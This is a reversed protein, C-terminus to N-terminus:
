TKLDSAGTLHFSIEFGLGAGGAVTKFHVPEIRESDLWTRMDGMTEGLPLNKSNGAQVVVPARVSM